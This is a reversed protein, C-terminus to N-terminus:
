FFLHFQTWINNETHNVKNETYRLDKYMVEVEVGSILYSGVGAAFQTSKGQTLDPATNLYEWGGKVYTERWVRVRPEVTIVMGLDRSGLDVNRTVKTVDLATTLRGRTFGGSASIMQRATMLGTTWNKVKTDWYSLMGYIGGKVFRGGINAVFGRDQAMDHDAFPEIYNLNFFPASQATGFGMGKYTATENLGTARAFLSTHDPSYHGFMPRYIGYQAYSNYPLEDVLVYASRVQSDRTYGQDWISSTRPDAMFRSEWVLNVKHVPELRVGLDTSMPIFSTKRTKDTKSSLYFFRTDVGANVWNTRRQRWPDGEPIRLVAEGSDMVVNEYSSRHDYYSESYNEQTEVLRLGDRQIRTVEKGDGSSGLFNKLKDEAYWQQITPAPRPKNPAYGDVYVSRLWRSENWQGYFNRLGGGNPNAHCSKCSLSCRRKSAEVNVRGPSHCAACNKSVRSAM